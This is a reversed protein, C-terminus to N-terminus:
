LSHIAGKERVNDITTILWIRADATGPKSDIRNIVRYVTEDMHAKDSNM